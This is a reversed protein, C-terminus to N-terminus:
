YLLNLNFSASDPIGNAMVNITVVWWGPTIFEMNDVRYLGEFGARFVVPHTPLDYGNGPMKGSVLVMADNVPSGDADKVTLEWSHIRNSRIDGGVSRYSISYVDNDSKKVTALDIKRPVQSQEHQQVKELQEHQARTRDEQAACGVLLFLMSMM